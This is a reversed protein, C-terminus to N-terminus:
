DMNKNHENMKTLLYIGNHKLSVTKFKAKIPKLAVHKQCIEYSEEKWCTARWFSWADARVGRDHKVFKGVLQTLIKTIKLTNGVKLWM